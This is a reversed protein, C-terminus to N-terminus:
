LTRQPDLDYPQRVSYEDSSPVEGWARAAELHIKRLTDLAPSYRMSGMDLWALAFDIGAGFKKKECPLKIREQPARTFAATPDEDAEVRAM